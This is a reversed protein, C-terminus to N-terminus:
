KNAKVEKIKQLVIDIDPNYVICKKNEKCIEEIEDLCQKLQQLQRFDCDQNKECLCFELSGGYGGCMCIEKKTKTYRYHVCKTIDIEM